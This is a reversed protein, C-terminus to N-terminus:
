PTTQTPATTTETPATVTQTQIETETEPAPEPEAPTTVTETQTETQTQTQTETTTAGGVTLTGKIAANEPDVLTYTGPDLTVRLTKKKGPAIANTRDVEGSEGQVAVAHSASGDNDVVLRLEGASAQIEAPDFGQDTVVLDIRQGSSDGADDDDSCAGLGVGAGLGLALLLLLRLVYTRTM